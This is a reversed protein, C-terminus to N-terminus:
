EEVEFLIGESAGQHVNIVGSEGRPRLSLFGGAYRDGFVFLGWVVEHPASGREGHQHLFPLSEVKEQIVWDGEALAQAVLGRWGEESTFAGVHVGQGQGGTARKIVMGARRTLALDSLEPGLRRTWPVHREILAREGATFRGGAAHESLLALNRKDTLVARAAANYLNLSGAKFCRYAHAATAGDHAEVVAHVRRDGAWLAGGREALDGYRRLMVTGRGALGERLQVARLEAALYPELEGAMAGLDEPAIFALNVEGDVGPLERAERLLHSLLLSITNRCSARGGRSELFRALVPVRLYDEAWVPAQWGGLHSVMNLELCKLGSPTDLFDGRGLAGRIGNPEDLM